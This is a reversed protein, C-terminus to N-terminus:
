GIRELDRMLAQHRAIDLWYGEITPGKDLGEMDLLLQQGGQDAKRREKRDWDALAAYLGNVYQDFLRLVDPSPLANFDYFANSGIYTREIGDVKRPHVYPYAQRMPLNVTERDLVHQLHHRLARWAVFNPTDSWGCHRALGYVDEDKFGPAGRINAHWGILAHVSVATNVAEHWLALLPRDANRDDLYHSWSQGHMQEMDYICRGTHELREYADAVQRGLNLHRDTFFNREGHAM